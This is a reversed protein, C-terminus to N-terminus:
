SSNAGETRIKEKEAVQAKLEEVIHTTANIGGLDGMVLIEEDRERYFDDDISFIRQFPYRHRICM